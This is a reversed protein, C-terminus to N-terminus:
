KLRCFHRLISLSVVTCCLHTRLRRESTCVHIYLLALIFSIIRRCIIIFAQLQRRHGESPKQSGEAKIASFQLLFSFYGVETLHSRSKPQRPLSASMGFVQPLDAPELSTENLKRQRLYREMLVVFMFMLGRLNLPRRFTIGVSMSVGARQMTANTLLSCHSTVGASQTSPVVLFCCIGLM